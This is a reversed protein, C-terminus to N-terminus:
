EPPETKQLRSKVIRTAVEVLEKVKSTRSIRDNEETTVDIRITQNISDFAVDEAHHFAPRPWWLVIAIAIAALSTIGAFTMQLQNLRSSNWRQTLWCRFRPSCVAIVLVIISFCAWLTVILLTKVLEVLAEVLEEM